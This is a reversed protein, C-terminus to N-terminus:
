RPAGVTSEEEDKGFKVLTQALERLRKDVSANVTGEEFTGDDQRLGAKVGTLIEIGEDITKVSWIHFQGKGVAELIEERLMLNQENSQPILVGQEGSLGNAQCVEFFGEVKENVGGIAQVEGKQNVSGTVAIGQKIALGALGSLIAYLEASSASDGDVGSYNQEFVLRAALSLPTHQAFKEMLYGALILVGKTHTPGGLKAEREIDILGERGVGISATIRSPRGFAIDGLDIVSLGNVQGARQGQVDIILVGQATMENLREKILSSRYFREEIAKKVHAATVLTANEQVAYYNAERIVDAMEGFRTSLKTQDEALRSGHEVIKALAACDLHRLGGDSCVASVFVTYDRVNDETRDMQSDFDAKVKFLEGFNDDRSLLLQYIDSQGILVVKVDLPIPEPQLSRTTMFGYQERVDEMVIQHNRLARLLSDWSFANRLVEVVPLVLYGGNARHLAGQRILTFDTVLTGLQAENEIRGFLNNYTPNLEMVVPAGKLTSNDVMVNVAYRKFLQDKGGPERFPLAPQEQPEARFDDLRELVDDRVADLYALVEPVNRYKEKLDDLLHSTAYLAVQRDMRELEEAASKEVNKAQRLAAKIEMQLAQQKQNIADQDAQGLLLFEEETLSHGRRVPITVIGMPTRQIIFGEQEAKARVHATIEEAQKEFASATEKRKNEYEEGEFAKRLERQVGEVLKKMETQLQKAEGAPLQIATPRSVDKLNNLYCWDPPTPQDRAVQELFHEVMTRRGTGPLGAVYINFGAAKIGLGFKLSRAAREQGIIAKAAKLEESTNCNLTQPDCIRRLKETTVEHSM